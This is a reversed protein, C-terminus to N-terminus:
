VHEDLLDGPRPCAECLKRLDGYYVYHDYKSDLVIQDVYEVNRPECYYWDRLPKVATAIRNLQDRLKDIEQQMEVASRTPKSAFNASCPRLYKPGQDHLGTVDIDKARTDFPELLDRIVHAISPLYDILGEKPPNLVSGAFSHLQQIFLKREDYNKQAVQTLEVHEAERQPTWSM